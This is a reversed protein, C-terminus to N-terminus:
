SHAEPLPRERQLWMLGIITKADSFRESELASGIENRPLRVLRIDENESEVGGGDEIRDAASVEGHFLTIRESSGGPSLYFTGIHDLEGVRYGMEELVERRISTEPDEDDGVVGAVTEVLWGPGNTYAPYRFQEVLLVDGTQREVIVAAVADGREFNLRRIRDSMHGDFREHRLYAEDVKFFDDLIRNTSEIEVKREPRDVDRV